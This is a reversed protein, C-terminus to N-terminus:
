IPIFWSVPTGALRSSSKSFLGIGVQRFLLIISMGKVMPSDVEGTKKSFELMEPYEGGGIMFKRVSSMSVGEGLLLNM